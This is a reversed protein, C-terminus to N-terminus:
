KNTKRKKRTPGRQQAKTNAKQKNGFLKWSAGLEKSPKDEKKRFEDVCLTTCFAVISIDQGNMELFKKDKYTQIEDKSQANFVREMVRDHLKLLMMWLILPSIKKM